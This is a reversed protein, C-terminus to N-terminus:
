EPADTGDNVEGQETVDSTVSTVQLEAQYQTCFEAVQCWNGTCRRPESRKEVIKLSKSDKSDKAFQDAEERSLFTKVPTKRWPNRVEWKTEIWREEPTCLPLEGLEAEAWASLHAEIREDLFKKQEEVTWLKLVVKEVAQQPYDPKRKAEWSSWDRYIAYITLGNPSFGYLCYFLYAYLNLQQEWKEHHLKSFAANTLKWDILEVGAGNLSQLDVQGTIILKGIPVFFRQESKYNDLAEAKIGDEIVKHVGKGLLAWLNKTLPTRIDRAHLRRLQQVRPPELLGTVRFHAKQPLEGQESVQMAGLFAPPVGVDDVISM